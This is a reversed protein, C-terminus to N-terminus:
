WFPRRSGDIAEVVSWTLVVAGAAYEVANRWFIRRDFGAVRAAVEAAIRAPDPGSM